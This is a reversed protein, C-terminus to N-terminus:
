YKDNFKSLMYFIQMQPSRFERKAADLVSELLPQYGSFDVVISVDAVSPVPNIMVDFGVPLVVPEVPPSKQVNTTIRGDKEKLSGTKRNDYALKKRDAHCKKCTHERGGRNEKNKGFNEILLTQKCNRCEKKISFNQNEAETPGITFVEEEIIMKNEKENKIQKCTGCTDSYLARCKNTGKYKALQQRLDCATKSM